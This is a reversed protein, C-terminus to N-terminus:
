CLTAPYSIGFNKGIVGGLHHVKGRARTRFLGHEAKSCPVWRGWFKHGAATIPSCMYHTRDYWETLGDVSRHFEQLKVCVQQDLYGPGWCDEYASFYIGDGVRSLHRTIYPQYVYGHCAWFEDGGASRLQAPTETDVMSAPPSEGDAVPPFVEDVEADSVIPVPGRYWGQVDFVLDIPSPGVNRVQVAGEFDLNAILSNSTAANSRYNLVSTTPENTGAPWVKLYGNGTANMVAVQGQVATIGTSPLGEIGTVPITRTAGSAIKGLDTDTRTDAIRSPKAVFDGDTSGPSFYGVVDVVVDGSAGFISVDFTGSNLPVVAGFSEAYGPRFYSRVDGPATGTAYTKVYGSNTQNIVAVSVAAATANVPVAAGSAVPATRSTGSSVVGPPGGIGTRTDLVRAPDIPAYGGGAVPGATYYGQVDVILETQAFARIQVTGDNGLALIATNSETTNASYNHYATTSDPTVGGPSAYLYGSASAGTTTFNVAVASAGQLPVGAQGAVNVTRWQGAPMPSTYGGVSSATRTDLIRGQASV